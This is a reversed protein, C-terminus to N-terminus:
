RVGTKVIGEAEPRPRTKTADGFRLVEAAPGPPAPNPGAALREEAAALTAAILRSASAAGGVPAHSYRDLTSRQQHGTIAMVSQDDAGRSKAWTTGGHRASHLTDGVVGVSQALRTFRHSIANHTLARGFQDCFILGEDHYAPGARRKEEQQRQWVARLADLAEECLPVRRVRLKGDPAKPKKVYYTQTSGPARMRKRIRAHAKSITLTPEEATQDVDPWTVARLEGSRTVCLFSLRWFEYLRHGQAAKLIRAAEEPTAARARSEPSAPAEGFGSGKALVNRDVYRRAVAFFLMTRLLIHVRRPTFRGKSKLLGYFRLADQAEFRRLRVDALTPKVHLNWTDEYGEITGLERGLERKHAVFEPFLEGFTIKNRQREARLDRGHEVADIAGRQVRLAAAKTRCTGLPVGGPGIIQWRGSKRQYISM